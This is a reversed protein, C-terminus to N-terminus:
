NNYNSFTQVSQHVIYKPLNTDYKNQIIEITFSLNHNIILIIM